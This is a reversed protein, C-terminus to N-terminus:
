FRYSWGILIGAAPVDSARVPPEGRTNIIHLQMEAQIASRDGAPIEVGATLAVGPRTLRAARYDLTYLGGGALVYGCAPTRGGQWGFTAVMQRATIHGRERSATSRGDISYDQELVRWRATAGELRARWPGLVPLDLRGSLQRGSHVSISGQVDDAGVAELPLEIYPASRGFSIGVGRPSLTSCDTRGQARAVGTMSVLGAAALLV